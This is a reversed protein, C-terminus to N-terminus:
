GNLSEAKKSFHIYIISFALNVILILVSLASAKGFKYFRFALEYVYTTMLHTSNIPGGRTMVWPLDFYVFTWVFDLLVVTLVISLMQPLTIHRFKQFGSAGDIDGAEYLEKPIIQLGSLLVIFAFPFTRWNHAVLVSIMATKPSSLFIIDKRILGLHKLLDNIPSLQPHYLWMWILAVAVGSMAWPMLNVTRFFLRGFGTKDLALALSFGLVLHFIVSTIVFLFSNKVAIYFVPDRFLGIFNEVGVYKPESGSTLYIDKFSDNIGSAVPYGIFVLIVLLTPLVFFYGLTNSRLRKRIMVSTLERTSCRNFLHSACAPPVQM